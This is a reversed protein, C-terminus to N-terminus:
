EWRASALGRLDGSAHPVFGRLRRSHVVVRDEWWLPVIPLERALRRQVRAYLAGRRARDTTVRAAEVLRDVVPDAFFGRNYGAPPTMGSHFALYYLDPETVGVWTMAVMEFNGSRVDAFLTGWNHTRVDLRIGVRALEAQIAEALRRRAPMGTTKYVVRFRSRPGPGDPDPWGARDLLRRAREPDPRSVAAPAFAWHEPPLLGSAPRAYGGLVTRALAPRDLAHAIARRVRRSALRPDRLNLGLYAVSSGPAARVVVGPLRAAWALLEPEFSEQLFHVNGRRLELLRVVPDPVIRVLIRRIAAPGGHHHGSAELELHSGVVHRVLRYPGAGRPLAPARADAAPVIALGTGDLFAPDPRTLRMVVRDAAPAEIAELSQLAAARPSGGSPDRLADYTAVVDAATVPTGDSFGADSRLTFELTTPDSFRWATAVDGVRRARDDSRTLGAHLLDALRSSAADLAFRPDLSQPESEFAIVLTERPPGPDGGCGVAGAALVACVAHRAIQKVANM